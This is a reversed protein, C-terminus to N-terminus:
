VGAIRGAARRGPGDRSAWGHRQEPLTRETDAEHPPQAQSTVGGTAGAAATPSSRRSPGGPVARGHGEPALVSAVGVARLVTELQHRLVKSPNRACNTFLCPSSPSSVTIFRTNFFRSQAISTPTQTMTAPRGTDAWVIVVPVIWRFHTLKM